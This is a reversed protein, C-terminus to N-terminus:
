EGKNADKWAEDVQKEMSDLKANAAAFASEVKSAADEM